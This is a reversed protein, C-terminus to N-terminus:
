ERLWDALRAQVWGAEVYGSHVLVRYRLALPREPRLTYGQWAFPSPSMLGDDRVLWPSPHWPNGPHDLIAIGVTEGLVVGNCACWSAQRGNLADPGFEDSSNRLQGGGSPMLTPAIRACLLARDSRGFEVMGEGPAAFM